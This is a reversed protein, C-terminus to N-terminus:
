LQNRLAQWAIGAMFDECLSQSDTLIHCYVQPFLSIFLSRLVFSNFSHAPIISLNATYHGMKVTTNM